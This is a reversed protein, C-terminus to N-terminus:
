KSAAKMTAPNVLLDIAKNLQLDFERDYVPTPLGLSYERKLIYKTIEPRLKFGKKNIQDIFISVNKDNYGPNESVFNAIINAKMLKDLNTKEDEDPILQNIVLDPTIGKKHISVGSPTYYKQITLAIGTKHSLPYINQVSGKGFSQNGLITGRKNDQMAGAFIESASASGNNLLVVMPTDLIKDQSSTSKYVRILKEGRGKVSVIDKGEPLFLDSLDISLDLLGGPNSRLDVVIGAAKKEQFDRVIKKFEGATTERGMFQSLRIYGVKEKEIFASKLFQIKILERNLTFSIPEKQTKRKIKLTVPTGAAGRMVKIAEPIGMKETSLGNIEIIKDQPLMGARQAPTDDIPTIVVLAGDQQTVEIGVGGFSGRTEEQLQKFDEEEMFRTHPDGLSGIMGKIAGLFINKDEVSEVFDAEILTSVEHFIQLYKEAERSIAFAREIPLLIFSGLVLTLSVWFIREKNKM